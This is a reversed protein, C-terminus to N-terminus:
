NRVLPTNSVVIRRVTEVTQQTTKDTVRLTLAYEAQPAGELQVMLYDVQRGGRVAPVNRDYTLAVQDDGKASLGMADGLGGLIRAAFGTRELSHITIRVDVTYHGVGTSDPQLNYIEWLLGLSDNPVFRGASPVFFFDTWRKFTSDRPAVRHAVLLDSLALSDTGYSRILLDSTSRAARGVDPLEAEVRLLYEKPELEFRYSRHEIQLSDRSQIVETRHDRQVTRMRGDRLIAATELNLEKTAAGRAMRGIPMFSFVGLETSTTGEGRFQDFQVLITDMDAVMPVNDWRAPFLNRAENYFTRFDGAFNTRGFGPAMSFMFRLQSTNYVWVITNRHSELNNLANDQSQADQGFAAWIDPPGWRLYVQGRDSDYGPLHRFPDSWRHIVYTLRALFELQVENVDSMFLPQSVAWYLRYLQTQQAASMEQFKAQDLNKLILGLNAYPAQQAPTMHRVATDYAAAADKWRLARVLALGLVAWARGSDPAARVLDRGLAVAEDGRKEELLLVTLLGAADVHRPDAALAARLHDEAESRDGTGLADGLPRVQSTFFWEVDRWENMLTYPDVAKADGIFQYRNARQEYREWKIVAGRFEIDALDGSGHEHALELAQDVLDDVQAREFVLTKTRYVQALGFVYRASDPELEMARRFHREARDRDADTTAGALFRALLIRGAQYRGEASEPPGIAVAECAAIAGATDAQALLSDGCTAAQAALTRVAGGLAIFMMLALRLTQM